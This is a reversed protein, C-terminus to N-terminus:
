PQRLASYHTAQELLYCKFKGGLSQVNLQQMKELQDKIDQAEERFTAEFSQAIESLRRELRAMGEQTSIKLDEISKKVEIDNQYWREIEEVYREDEATLPDKLFNDIAKQWEIKKAHSLKGAIRVLAGSIEQWLSPFENDAIEMSQNVHGYVSNRFYKIRVLDASLSLDTTAPLADWGTAPPTLKCITRLLRFLLTVDFDTSNGYVGPSPYLCDWQPNTLRAAKLQTKTTPNNLIAPLRGPPCNADFVERLLQTGGSILLRAVRQFNAKGATSRFVEGPDPSAAM